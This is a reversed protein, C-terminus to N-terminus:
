NFRYESYFLRRRSKRYALSVSSCTAVRVMLDPYKAPNKQADRLTETKVMNFQVQSIGMDGWARILDIFQRPTTNPNLRM